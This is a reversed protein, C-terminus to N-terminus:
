NFKYKIEKIISSSGDINKCKIALVKNNDSNNFLKEADTNSINFELQGLTLNMKNSYTCNIEHPLNNNDKYILVYSATNMLDLPRYKDDETKENLTILYKGGYRKLFLESNIINTSNTEDIGINFSNVYEKIYKTKVNNINNSVNENIRNIKNFVKYQSISNTNLKLTSLNYRDINYTTLGGKRVIQTGDYRNILRATYEFTIYALDTLSNNIIPVYNFKIPNNIDSLTFTQQLNYTQPVQILKGDNNYFSTIIEHYIMWRNESNLIEQSMEADYLMMDNDPSYGNSSYLKIRTNFMNVTAVTIPKDDWTCYFDLYNGSKSEGLYINFKNSESEYPIEVDILENLKFTNGIINHNEDYINELSENSITSYIIEINEDNDTNLLNLGEKNFIKLDNDDNFNGICKPSPVKFEVFKDYMKNNLIIPKEFKYERDSKRYLWNALKIYEHNNNKTRVQVLIGFLDNFSYGGLIHLRITDYQIRRSQNNELIFDCYNEFTNKYNDNSIYWTTNLDDIPVVIHNPSNNTGEKEGNIDCYLKIINEKNSNDKCQYLVPNLINIDYVNNGDVDTQIDSNNIIYELLVTPTLQLFKSENIM